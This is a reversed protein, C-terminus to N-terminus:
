LRYKYVSYYYCVSLSVCKCMCKYPMYNNNTLDLNLYVNSM